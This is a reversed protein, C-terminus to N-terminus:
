QAIHNLPPIQALSAFSPTRQPPFLYQSVEKAARSKEQQRPHYALKKRVRKAAADKERQTASQAPAIVAPAHGRLNYNANRATRHQLNAM